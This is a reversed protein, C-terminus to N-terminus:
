TVSPMDWYVTVEDAAAMYSDVWPSKGKATTHFANGSARLTSIFKTAIKQPTGGVQEYFEEIAKQETEAIIKKRQRMFQFIAEDWPVLISNVKEKIDNVHFNEHREVRTAFEANDPLGRAEVTVM